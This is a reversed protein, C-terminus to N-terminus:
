SPRPLEYPVWNRENFQDSFKFVADVLSRNALQAIFPFM